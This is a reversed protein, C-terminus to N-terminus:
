SYGLRVRINDVDLLDEQLQKVHAPNSLHINNNKIFNRVVSDVNSVTRMRRLLLCKQIVHMFDDPHLTGLYKLSGNVLEKTAEPNIKSAM